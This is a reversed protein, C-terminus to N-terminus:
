EEFLRHFNKTAFTSNVDQSRALAVKRYRFYNTSDSSTIFLVTTSLYYDKSNLECEKHMYLHHEIQM